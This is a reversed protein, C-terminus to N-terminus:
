RTVEKYFAMEKADSVGLTSSPLDIALVQRMNYGTNATQLAVLTALLTAAGALLVFSLCRAAITM